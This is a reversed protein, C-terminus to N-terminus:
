TKKEGGRAACLEGCKPHETAHGRTGYRGVARKTWDGPWMRAVFARSREVIVPSTHAPHRCENREYVIPSCIM